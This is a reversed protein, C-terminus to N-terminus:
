YAPALGPGQDSGASWAGQQGQSAQHEARDRARSAALGDGRLNPWPRSPLARALAERGWIGGDHSSSRATRAQTAVVQLNPEGRGGGPPTSRPGDERQSAIRPDQHIGGPPRAGVKSCKFRRGPAATTPGLPAKVQLNLPAM